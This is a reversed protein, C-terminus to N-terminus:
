GKYTVSQVIQYWKYLKFFPYGAIQSFSVSGWPHNEQQVFALDRLADCIKM